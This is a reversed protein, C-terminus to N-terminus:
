EILVWLNKASSFYFVYTPLEFFTLYNRLIYAREVSPYNNVHRVSATFLIQSCHNVNVLQFWIFFQNLIQLIKNFVM